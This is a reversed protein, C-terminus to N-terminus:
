KTQELYDRLTQASTEPDQQSLIAGLPVAGVAAASLNSLHSLRPDFRATIRDRQLMNLAAPIVVEYADEGASGTDGYILSLYRRDQDYYYPTNWSPRGGLGHAAFANETNKGLMTASAGDLVDDTPEGDVWVRSPKKWGDPDADTRLGVYSAFEDEKARASANVYMERARAMRSAEDMPLDYNKSLWENLRANKTADGMDLMADTVEAGRGGRLLDMVTQGREAVDDASRMAGSRLAGAPAPMAAAGLQVIGATNLVDGLTVPEGRAARGPASVAAVLSDIIAKGAGKAAGVVQSGTPMSASEVIQSLTKRERVTDPAPESYQKGSRTQYWLRGQEDRYLPFDGPGADMPLELRRGAFTEEWSAM